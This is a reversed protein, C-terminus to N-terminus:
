FNSSLPVPEGRPRHRSRSLESARTSAMSVPTMLEPTRNPSYRLYSVTLQVTRITQRCTHPVYCLPIRSFLDSPSANFSISIFLGISSLHSSIPIILFILSYFTAAGFRPIQKLANRTTKPSKISRAMQQSSIHFDPFADQISAQWPLQDAYSHAHFM